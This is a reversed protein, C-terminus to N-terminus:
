WLQIRRNAEDKLDDYHQDKMFMDTKHDIKSLKLAKEADEARMGERGMGEQLGRIQKKSSAELSRGEQLLQDVRTEARGARLGERGMGHKLDKILGEALVNRDALEGGDRTMQGIMTDKKSLHRILNTNEKRMKDTLILHKRRALERGQHQGYQQYGLRKERESPEWDKDKFTRTDDKGWHVGRRPKKPDKRGGDKPPDSYPTNPYNRKPARTIPGYGGPDGRGGARGPDGRRGRKERSRTPIKAPRPIIGRPHMPLGTRIKPDDRVPKM